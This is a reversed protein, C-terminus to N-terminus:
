ALSTVLNESNSASHLGNNHSCSLNLQAGHLQQQQQAGLVSGIDGALVLLLWYTPHPPLQLDYKPMEAAAAAHPHWCGINGHM